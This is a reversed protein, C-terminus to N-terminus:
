PYCDNGNSSTGHLYWFIVPTIGPNIGPLFNGRKSRWHNTLALPFFFRGVLQLFPAQIYYHPQILRADLIFLYELLVNYFISAQLPFPHRQTPIIQLKFKSVMLQALGCPHPMNSPTWGLVNGKEVRLRM